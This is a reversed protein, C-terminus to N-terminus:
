IVVLRYDVRTGLDGGPILVETMIIDGLELGLKKIYSDNISIQPLMSIKIGEDEVFVDQNDWVKYSIPNFAKNFVDEMFDNDVFFKLNVEYTKINAEGQSTMGHQTILIYKNYLDIVGRDSSFKWAEEFPTSNKKGTKKYSDMEGLYLVLTGDEAKDKFYVCSFDMRSTPMEQLRFNMGQYAVAGQGQFPGFNGSPYVCNLFGRQRMMKNENAKLLMMKTVFDQAMKCSRWNLKVSTHFSTKINQNRYM